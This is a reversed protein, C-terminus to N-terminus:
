GVLEEGCARCRPENAPTATGCRPCNLNVQGARPLGGGPSKSGLASSILWVVGGGLVLLIVIGLLSVSM